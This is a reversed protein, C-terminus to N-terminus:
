QHIFTLTFTGNYSGPLNGTNNGPIRLTGGVFVENPFDASPASTVFTRDQTSFSNISLYIEGGNGNANTLTTEGNDQIYVITGPNAFVDFIASSVSASGATMLFIDGNNTRIGDFDVFVNGGTPGAVFSGFNLNRATRVEVTIPIPPNEQAQLPLLIFFLFAGLGSHLLKKVVSVASNSKM